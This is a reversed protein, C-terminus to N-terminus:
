LLLFVAVTVLGGLAAGAAVDAVYHQRTVLTSVAVLAAWVFVAVAMTAGFAAYAIIVAASGFAVHISPFNGYPRCCRQFRALVRRSLTQEQGPELLDLREIRSPVTLHVISGLLTIICYAVVLRVFAARDQVLLPPLVALVYTSFYVFAFGPVVPILADLRTAPLFRPRDPRISRNIVFYQLLWLALGAGVFALRVALPVTASM